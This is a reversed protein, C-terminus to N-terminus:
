LFAEQPIAGKEHLAQFALLAKGLNWENQELCMKAYRLNLSTKTSLDCIIADKEDVRQYKPAWARDKDCKRILLLDSLIFISNQISGLIFTRSFSLSDEGFKASGQIFIQIAQKSGPGFDDIALADFIVDDQHVLKHQTSPLNKLAESIQTRGISLRSELRDKSLITKMNRSVSRWNKLGRYSGLRNALSCSFNADESYM